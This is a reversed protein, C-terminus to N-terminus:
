QGPLMSIAPLPGAKSKKRTKHGCALMNIKAILQSEPQGSAPVGISPNESSDKNM